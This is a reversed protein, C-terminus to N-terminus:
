VKKGIKLSEIYSNLILSAAVKDKIGKDKILKNKSIINLSIKSTFREDFYVVPINIDNLNDRVFNEIFEVQVGKQNKLNYPMGVVIKEVNYKKIIELIEDKFNLSNQLTVLPYSIKKQEDTIAVGIRRLGIDLGLIRM